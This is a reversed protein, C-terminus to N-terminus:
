DEEIRVIAWAIRNEFDQQVYAEIEQQREGEDLDELDEDPINTFQPRSKGAYGDEVEGQVRM